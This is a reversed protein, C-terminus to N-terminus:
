FATLLHTRLNATRHKLGLKKRIHETVYRINEMLSPIDKFVTHNVRQLLYDPKKKDANQLRFTDNIHGSGYPHIDRIEGDLNFQSIVDEVKYKTKQM